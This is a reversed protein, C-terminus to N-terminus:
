EKGKYRAYADKLIAEYEEGGIKRLNNIYANFNSIPEIGTIFKMNMEQIYNSIDAYLRTLKNQESQTFYVRPYLDTYYQEVEQKMSDMWFQQGPVEKKKSIFSAPYRYPINTPTIKQLRYNWSSPFESPTILSWTDDGNWEWCDNGPSEGKEPGFFGMIAGEESYFYDVWRVIAEPYKTQASVFFKPEAVWQSSEWQKVNSFESTLATMSEYDKYEDDKLITFPAANGSIGIKLEAFKAYHQQRNQTFYEKDILEENYLKSVYTLYEKYLPHMEFFVPEGNRMSIKDALSDGVFGYAHRIAKLPDYYNNIFSSIPITDNEGNGNPDNDKFAKLVQYLEELNQPKNMNLNKLWQENIWIRLGSKEVISGLSYINGDPATINKKFEPIEKFTNSINPAYKEIIPNLNLFKGSTENTQSTKIGCVIDPLENSALLINLKNASSEDPVAEIDLHINTLKEMHEFLFMNEYRGTGPVQAILMKLDIKEDVIPYGTKNLYSSGGLGTDSTKDGCSTLMSVSILFTAASVIIKSFRM